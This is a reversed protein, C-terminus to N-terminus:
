LTAIGGRELVVSPLSLSMCQTGIDNPSKGPEFRNELTMNEKRWLRIRTGTYWPLLEHSVIFRPKGIEGVQRKDLDNVHYYQDRISIIQHNLALLILLTNM